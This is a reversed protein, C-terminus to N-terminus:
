SYESVSQICENFCYTKLSFSPVGPPMAQGWANPATGITLVGLENPRFQQTIFLRLTLADIYGLHNSKTLVRFLHFNM